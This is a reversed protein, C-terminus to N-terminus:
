AMNHENVLRDCEAMGQSIIEEWYDSENEWFLDVMKYAEDQEDDNLMLFAETSEIHCKMTDANFTIKNGEAETDVMNQYASDIAQKILEKM